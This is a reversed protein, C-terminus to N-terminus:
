IESFGLCSKVFISESSGEHAPGPGRSMHDMFIFESHLLQVKFCSKDSVM